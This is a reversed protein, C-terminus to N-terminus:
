WHVISWVISSKCYTIQPHFTPITTLKYRGQVSFCNQIALKICKLTSIWSSCYLLQSVLHIRPHLPVCSFFGMDSYSPEFDPAVCYQVSCVLIYTFICWTFYCGKLSSNTLWGLQIAREQYGFLKLCGVANLNICSLIMSLYVPANNPIQSFADFLIHLRTRWSSCWSSYNFRFVYCLMSVAWHLGTKCTRYYTHVDLHYPHLM